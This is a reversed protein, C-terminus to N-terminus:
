SKGNFLDPSATSVENDTGPGMFDDHSPVTEELNEAPTTPPTPTRPYWVPSSALHHIPGIPACPM